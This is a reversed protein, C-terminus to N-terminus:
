QHYVRPERVGEAIVREAELLFDELRDIVKDITAHHQPYSHEFFLYSVADEGMGFFLSLAVMPDDYRRGNSDVFMPSFTNGTVERRRLSLGVKKFWEDTTCWGIVCHATTCINIIEIQKTWEKMTFPLSEEKVRKAVELTKTLAIINLSGPQFDRMSEIALERNM